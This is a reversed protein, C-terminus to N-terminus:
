IAFEDEARSLTQEENRKMLKMAFHKGSPAEVEYVTGYTGEGLLAVYKLHNLWILSVNSSFTPM